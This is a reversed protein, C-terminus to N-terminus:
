KRVVSAKLYALAAEGQKKADDQDNCVRHFLRNVTQGMRGTEVVISHWKNNQWYTQTKLNM